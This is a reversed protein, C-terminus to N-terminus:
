RWACADELRLPSELGPLGAQHSLVWRVLIQENGARGFEPWCRVVPADVDLLGREVLMHACLATAGKPTSCVLALTDSTWPRRTRRDAVAGWLDVVFQGDADVAFASGLEREEGFNLRYADAVPEWWEQVDGQATAVVPMIERM